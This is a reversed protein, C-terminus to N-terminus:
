ETVERGTWKRWYFRIPNRFMSIFGGSALVSWFWGHDYGLWIILAPACILLIIGPPFQLRMPLLAVITACIVWLAAFIMSYDM